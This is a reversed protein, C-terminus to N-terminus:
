PRITGNIEAAHIAGQVRADWRAGDYFRAQRDAPDVDELQTGEVLISDADLFNYPAESMTNLAGRVAGLFAAIGNKTYPLKPNETLRAFAREQILARLFDIGFIVDIWEGGAVMGGLTVALGTANGAPTMEGYITVRKGSLPSEPSGILRTVQASSFTDATQGALSALAFTASGPKERFRAAAIAAEIHTNARSWVLASRFLTDDALASAVDTAVADLV